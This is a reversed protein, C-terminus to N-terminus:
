MHKISCKMNWDTRTAGQLIYSYQQAKMLRISTQTTCPGVFGPALDSHRSLKTYHHTIKPPNQTRRKSWTLTIAGLIKLHSNSKHSIQTRRFYDSVTANIGGVTFMDGAVVCATYMCDTNNIQTITVEKIPCLQYHILSFIHYYFWMLDM